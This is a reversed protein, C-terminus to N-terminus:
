PCILLTKGNIGNKVEDKFLLALFNQMELSLKKSIYSILSDSAPSQSSQAVQNSNEGWANLTPSYFSNNNFYM